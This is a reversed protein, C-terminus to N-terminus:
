DTSRKSSIFVYYVEENGAKDIKGKTYIFIGDVTIGKIVYLKEASGTRPNKSRLTKTIASANVIADRIHRRTLGDAEMEIQAKETLVIRDDKVLKKIRELIDM